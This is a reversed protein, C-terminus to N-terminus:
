VLEDCGTERALRALEIWAILEDMGPPVLALFRDVDDEDLYTGRGALLRLTERHAAKWRDLASGAALEVALLEGRRTKVPTPDGSLPVRLADGLSHAPDTSVALVRRGSEAAALAAAAACTTKGVGGKGGFLRLIEM